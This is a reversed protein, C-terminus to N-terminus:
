KKLISSVRYDSPAYKSVDFNAKFGVNNYKTAAKGNLFIQKVDSSLAENLSGM